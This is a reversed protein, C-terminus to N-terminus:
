FNLSIQNEYIPFFPELNYTRPSNTKKLDIVFVFESESSYYSDSYEIVSLKSISDIIENHMYACIMRWALIIYIKKQRLFLLSYDITDIITKMRIARINHTHTHQKTDDNISDIEDSEFKRKAKKMKKEDNSYKM